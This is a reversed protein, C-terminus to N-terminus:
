KFQREGVPNTETPNPSPTIGQGRINKMEPKEQLAKVYDVYEQYSKEYENKSGKIRALKIKGKLDTLDKKSRLLNWEAQEKLDLKATGIGLLIDMSRELATKSQDQTNIYTKIGPIFSMVTHAYYPNVYVATKGTRADVRAEWSIAEKVFNPLTNSLTSGDLNGLNGADEIARQTFFEYGKTGKKNPLLKELPVKLFPTMAALVSKEMTRKVDIEGNKGAVFISLIEFPTMNNFVNFGAKGDKDFGTYLTPQDVLFTTGFTDRESETLQEGKFGRELLKVVKQATVATGPQTVVNKLVFPIAFRPYTYFPIMRKFVSKEVQSLGRSYDFLAKNVLKVSEKSSYGMGLGNMYLMMRSYDEAFSPWNWVKALQGAVQGISDPNYNLANNIKIKLSEGSSDFGKIVGDERAMKIIDEGKYVTGLVSTKQFGKAFNQLEEEGTIRSLALREALIADTDKFSRNLLNSISKPIGTTKKGTNMLVVAADIAARPDFSKFSKVGAVMASAITNSVLQKASSSPKISYAGIKWLRTAKDIVQLLIKAENNMGAPYVSDGLSKISNQVVTPLKNFEKNTLQSGVQGPLSFVERVTDNFQAAAMKERHKLMRQAYVVLADMEPVNGAAKAEVITLYDRQQSSGLFTNLGAKQQRQLNTIKTADKLVEYERHTYNVISTRLLNSRMELEAMKGYGQYMSAVLAHEQPTLKAAKIADMKIVDAEGQTVIRGLTEEKIRTADDISYMLGQIKTRGEKPIDKGLKAVDRIVQPVLNDFTNEIQHFNDVFEQPLKDFDAEKNFVRRITNVGPIKKGLESINSALRNVGLMNFMQQTGPIDYQKSFPVGVKLRLGKEEFSKFEPALDALKSIRQEVRERVEDQTQVTLDKATGRSQQKLDKFIEQKAIEEAQDKSINKGFQQGIEQTRKTLEDFYGIDKLISQGAPSFATQGTRAVQRAEANLIELADTGAKGLFREAATKELGTKLSSIGVKSLTRGGIQIGSKALGVGLYTTPDLAVDGLFGLAITTNPNNQAFEPYNKQIITTFSLRDKPDILEQGAMGLSEFISKGETSYSDFFKASAYQGRSLFELVPSISSIASSAYGKATEYSQASWDSPEQLVQISGQNDTLSGWGSGTNVKTSPQSTIPSPAVIPTAGIPEWGSTKKKDQPM